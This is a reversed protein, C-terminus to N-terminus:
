PSFDANDSNFTFIDIPTTTIDEQIRGGGNPWGQNNDLYVVVVTIDDHFHRRVGKEIRMIDDYRMERKKAAVEIAARILRKAIGNNGLLTFHWKQGQPKALKAVKTWLNTKRM